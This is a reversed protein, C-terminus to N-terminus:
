ETEKEAVLYSVYKTGVKVKELRVTYGNKFLITAVTEM